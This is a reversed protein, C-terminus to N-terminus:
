PALISGLGPPALGRAARGCAAPRSMGGRLCAPRAAPGARAASMLKPLWHCDQVDSRRGPVYKLQWADVLWVKPGHQELVEFVPIWDVGTPEVAVPVVGLSTLWAALAKLDETMVGVERVPECGAGEALQRPVAVWHSSAGIDIGAAKPFV